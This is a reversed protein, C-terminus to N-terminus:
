GEFISFSARAAHRNRSGTLPRATMRRKTWNVVKSSIKWWVLLPAVVISILQSNFLKLLTTAGKSRAPKQMQLWNGNRRILGTVLHAFM